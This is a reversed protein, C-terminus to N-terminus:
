SARLTKGVAALAPDDDPRAHVPGYPWRGRIAFGCLMAGAWGISGGLAAMFLIGIGASWIMLPTRLSAPTQPGQAARASSGPAIREVWAPPPAKANASSVSDATVQFRQLSGAPMAGLAVLMLGVLGIGVSAMAALWTAPRTTSGHRRRRYASTAWMGLPALLATGLSILAAVLLVLAGGVFAALRVLINATVRPPGVPAPLSAPATPATM